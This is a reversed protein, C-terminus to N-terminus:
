TNFIYEASTSLVSNHQAWKHMSQNNHPRKKMSSNMRVYLYPVKIICSIHKCFQAIRPPFLLLPEKMPTGLSISHPVPLCTSWLPDERRYRPVSEHLCTCVAACVTRGWYVEVWSCRLQEDHYPRHKNSGRQYWKLPVLLIRCNKAICELM